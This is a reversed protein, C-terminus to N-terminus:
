TDRNMTGRLSKLCRAWPFNGGPSLRPRTAAPDLYIPPLGHSCLPARIVALSSVARRSYHQQKPYVAILSTEIVLFM